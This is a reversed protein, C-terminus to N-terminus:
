TYPLRFSQGPHGSRDVTIAIVFVATHKMASVLDITAIEKEPHPNEWTMRYLRVGWKPYHQQWRKRPWQWIVVGGAKEREDM